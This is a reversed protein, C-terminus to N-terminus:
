GASLERARANERHDLAMFSLLERSRRTAEAAQCIPLLRRLGRAGASRLPGPRHQKGAPLRRDPSKIARGERGIDLGFVRLRGSTLPSFAYVMRITPHGGRQSRPDRLVAENSGFILDDVAVDGNRLHEAKIISGSMRPSNGAGGKNRLYPIAYPGERISGRARDRQQPRHPRRLANEAMERRGRVIAAGRTGLLDLGCRGPILDYGRGRFRIPATSSGIKGSRGSSRRGCKRSGSNYLALGPGPNNGSITATM